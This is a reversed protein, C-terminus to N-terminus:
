RRAVVGPEGVPGAPPYGITLRLRYHRPENTERDRILQWKDSYDRPEEDKLNATVEGFPVWVVYKGPPVSWHVGNVYFCERKATQNDIVVEGQIARMVERRFDDDTAMQGLLSGPRAGGSRALDGLRSNLQRIESRLTDVERTLLENAEKLSRIEQELAALRDAESASSAGGSQEEAQAAGLAPPGSSTGDTSPDDQGFSGAPLALVALIAWFRMGHLSKMEITESYVLKRAHEM